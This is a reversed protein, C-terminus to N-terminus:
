KKPHTLNPQNTYAMRPWPCLRVGLIVLMSASTPRLGIGLFTGQAFTGLLKPICVHRSTVTGLAAQWPARHWTGPESRAQKPVSHLM